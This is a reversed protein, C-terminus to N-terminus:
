KIGISLIFLNTSNRASFAHKCTINKTSQPIYSMNHHECYQDVIGIPTVRPPFHVNVEFIYYKIFHHDLLYINLIPLTYVNTVILIESGPSWVKVFKTNHEDFNASSCYKLKKTHPYCLKITARSNTYGM